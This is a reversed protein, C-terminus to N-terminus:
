ILQYKERLLGSLAQDDNTALILRKERETFNPISFNKVYSKAFSKFGGSYNKSTKKLYYWMVDSNLIKVLLKYDSDKKAYLAYGCYILTDPDKVLIFSPKSGMMPMIIKKGDANLGQNRGYAYWAGYRKQGGDRKELELRVALLYEYAKPYLNQLNQESILVIKGDRAEYPYIIREKNKRLAEETKVKNPKIIKRTLSREILYTNNGYIKEIYAGGTDEVLFLHNSLTAIGTIYRRVYEHLPSGAKEIKMINLADKETLLRWESETLKSAPIKTFSIENLNQILKKDKVLSFLVQENEAKSLITICTYTTAGEFIQWGNFDIVKQLFKNRTLLGRLPKANLSTLYTSPTIYGIRGGNRVWSLGLEFFPIYLDTNGFSGTEWKKLNDRVDKRINKTRVYPPNGVIFDFKRNGRIKQWDFDLSDGTYINFQFDRDEGDLVALLSLITKTKQVSSSLIDVGFIFDAFVKKYSHNTQGRINKAVEILFAGAGCAPDCVTGPSDIVSDVVYKVVPKPTYYAGNVKRETRNVQLEYFRELFDIGIEQRSERLLSELTRINKNERKSIESLIRNKVHQIGNQSFTERIIAAEIDQLSFASVRKFLYDLGFVDM